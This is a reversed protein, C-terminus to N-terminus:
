ACQSPAIIKGVYKQMAMKQDRAEFILMNLDVHKDDARMTVEGNAVTLSGALNAMIKDTDDSDARKM